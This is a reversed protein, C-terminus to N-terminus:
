RDKGALWEVQGKGMMLPAIRNLVEEMECDFGFPPNVVLLAAKALKGEQAQVCIDIRLARTVGLALVEDCFRRAASDSKVPFWILYVGTAFRRLSARVAEAVAAFEDEAEFPPDILVLGRREPPPLLSLLKAYGDGAEARAKRWPAMAKKLAAFEEPHKEVAVLRDQPRLMKAAILPSGPYRAPDSAIDLYRELAGEAVLGRLKEIGAAAEGTKRAEEASLDYSGRGGHSDIVAFATDKKQLHLLVAVLAVHKVVDAFNGAHYAHRYNM